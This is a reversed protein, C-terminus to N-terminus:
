PGVYAWGSDWIALNRNAGDGNYNACFLKLRIQSGDDHAIATCASPDIPGFSYRFVRAFGDVDEFTLLFARSQYDISAAAIYRTTRGGGVLLSSTQSLTAPKQRVAPDQVRCWGAPDGELCVVAASAPAASAAHLTPVFVAVLLALALLCRILPPRSLRRM